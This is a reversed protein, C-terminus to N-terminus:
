GAVEEPAEGTVGWPSLDLSAVGVLADAVERGETVASVLRMHGASPTQLEAVTVRGDELTARLTAAGRPTEVTAAGIGSAGAEPVTDSVSPMGSLEATGWVLDLSRQAEALRVRLRALADGGDETVPEFGLSRYVEEDMRADVERGCARAVPGSAGALGPLKGVGKLRRRLLPTRGVRRALKRVEARIPPIDDADTQLLAIQLDEARRALWPYGILHGFSALWNLHSAARECELAGVRALADPGQAGAGTADEVARLALLRYSVPSLPDLRAFREVFAEVPCNSEQRGGVASGARAEAVTDGDLTFTLSLGGPLGPLLPGFPTEVWEMQLGDSSRPTGQTMEVMSMFGMDGHDMGGHDTGGHAGHHAHGHDDQAEHGGREEAHHAHDHGEHGGESDGEEGGNAAEREVLDMRCKPCTSPEDRVVEPHMSCTYETRSGFAAAEFAGAAEPAFAGEAFLRRLRAVGVALSEEEADASVDPGPLPSLDGAGVALVARPRPVQAYAVAAAERLGEPLEGVALLVNAHRPTAAVRLGAARLDLGRARAVEPGPVVFACLDRAQAQSALRRLFSSRADRAGSLAAEPGTEEASPDAGANAPSRAPGSM